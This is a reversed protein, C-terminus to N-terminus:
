LRYVSISYLYEPYFEAKLQSIVDYNLDMNLKRKGQLRTTRQLYLLCSALVRM